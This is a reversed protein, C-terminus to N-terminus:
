GGVGGAVAGVGPGPRKHFPIILSTFARVVAGALSFPFVGKIGVLQAEHVANLQAGQFVRMIKSAGTTPVQIPDPGISLYNSALTSLMRTAFLSQAATVVYAGSM